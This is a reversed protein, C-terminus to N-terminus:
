SARAFLSPPALRVVPELVRAAGFGIRVVTGAGLQSDITLEAGHL